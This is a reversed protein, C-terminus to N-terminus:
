NQWHHSDPSQGRPMKIAGIAGYHGYIPGYHGWHGCLTWSPGLHGYHGWIGPPSRRIPSWDQDGLLVEYIQPSLLLTGLMCLCRELREFGKLDVYLGSKHVATSMVQNQCRTFPKVLRTFQGRPNYFIRCDNYFVNCDEQIIM